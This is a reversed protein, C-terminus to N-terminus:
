EFKITQFKPQTLDKDSIKLIQSPLKWNIGLDPDDFIIGKDFKSNYYNDVKYSVIAMESLVVFGHAFGKPIFLQKKNEESLEIAFYHGFTKSYKRIDVAIDLVTGSVVRVLKTQAYPSEQYHLGRLVGYSSNSENDQCFKIKIGLYKDLEKQNFSEFFYGRHDKLVYPEIIFLDLLSTRTFKM